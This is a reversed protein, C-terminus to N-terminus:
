VYRFGHIWLPSSSPSINLMPSRRQTDKSTRVHTFITLQGEGVTTLPRQGKQPEKNPRAKNDGLLSTILQIKEQRDSINHGEKGQFRSSFTNRRQRSSGM